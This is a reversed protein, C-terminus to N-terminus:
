RPESNFWITVSCGHSVATSSSTIRPSWPMQLEKFTTIEKEGFLTIIDGNQIGADYAPGGPVAEVVYVGQPFGNEVMTENVEQGRVGFYPVQLGNTMKEIVPKYDSIGVAATMKQSEETKYDESTWGIIEGATNLLFTGM